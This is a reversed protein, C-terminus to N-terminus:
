RVDIFEGLSAGYGRVFSAADMVAKGPPQIHVIRVSGTGCSVTIGNKPSAEVIRGPDGAPYESVVMTRHIKLTGLASETYAGPVPNMGRIKNHIARADLSWDILGNEKFLKPAPRTQRNPQRIPKARDEDIMAVTELMLDAGAIMLRAYLEGATENEGIPYERQLLIDGTDINEDIFFTTLGTTRDGNIVAWNIPAAGRYDPLLSGHLNVTGKPPMAFVAKPLIRFAVVVFLDAEFGALTELFSPDSMKEPALVPIGLSDAQEGVPSKQMHRGRGKPRDPRTVVVPIDYREHLARLTPIGFEATGMFVIRM